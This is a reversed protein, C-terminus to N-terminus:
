SSAGAWQWVGKAEAAATWSCAGSYTKEPVSYHVDFLFSAVPGKMLNRHHLDEWETLLRDRPIPTGPLRREVPLTM